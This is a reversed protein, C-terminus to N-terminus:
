ENLGRVNSVVITSRGIGLDRAAVRAGSATPRPAITVTAISSPVSQSEDVLLGIDRAPSPARPVYRETLPTPPALSAPAAIRVEPRVSVYSQAAAPVSMVLPLGCFAVCTFARFMILVRM